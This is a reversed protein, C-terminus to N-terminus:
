YTGRFIKEFFWKRELRKRQSKTLLVNPNINASLYDLLESVTCFWANKNALRRLLNQSNANIKSNEFFKKGFHTYLICAGNERELRDQNEENLLKNFRKVDSGDSSCFFYNVFPKLPDHYPMYPCQKLTNIDNYVFNRVYKVKDKCIDGWFYKNDKIHGKFRNVNKYKIVSYLIKYIGTIRADGWYISEECDAHNAFSIPYHGFYNYFKEIGNITESRTSSSNTVNHLAIEFGKSKLEFLWDLYNKDECTTGEILPNKRKSNMTWVSKTTRLGIDYLYSYIPKVNELTAYDTDDFITFAFDHNNPWKIKNIM